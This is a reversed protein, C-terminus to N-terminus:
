ESTSDHELYKIKKRKSLVVLSTSSRTKLNTNTCVSGIHRKKHCKFCTLHEFICKKGEHIRRRCHSCQKFIENVSQTNSSDKYAAELNQLQALLNSVSSGEYDFDALKTAFIRESCTAM